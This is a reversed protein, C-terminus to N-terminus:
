TELIGQLLLSFGYYMWDGECANGSGRLFHANVSMTFGSDIGWEASQYSPGSPM